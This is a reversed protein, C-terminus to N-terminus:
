TSTGGTLTRRSRATVTVRSPESTDCRVRCGGEYAIRVIGLGSGGAADGTYVRELAATYAELPDDFAQLWRVREELSHVHASGPEVANTAEIVISGSSVGVSLRIDSSPKGYKVANELLEASVMSLADQLEEDAFVGVLKRVAERVPDIREWVAPLALRLEFQETM